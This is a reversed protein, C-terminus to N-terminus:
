HLTQPGCPHEEFTLPRRGISYTHKGNISVQFGVPWSRVENTSRLAVAPINEFLVIGCRSCRQERNEPKGAIHVTRM